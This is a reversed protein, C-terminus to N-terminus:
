ESSKEQPAYVLSVVNSIAFTVTEVRDGDFELTATDSPSEGSLFRSPSLPVLLVFVQGPDVVVLDEGYMEISLEPPATFGPPLDSTHSLAYRGVLRNRELQSLEISDSHSPIASHLIEPGAALILRVLYGFEMGSVQGEPRFTDYRHVIVLDWQPIVLVFHGRYGSASFAGDPLVVNSLHQGDVAIWWMYGYGGNPGADSYSTTSEAVWSVPIIQENRWRGGRAFLLGFRALDRASMRFGYYPHQSPPAYDYKLQELPYDQMGLPSAIRNQFAQYINWEGTEQDFITGLANFDWNNYYWFTGPAHSGRQPRIEKMSPAEGAAPIYVGSRAKLLDAVTAQKEVETLPTHDDIGLEALTKSTDIKGEAVYIGVLGSLLSKRMSHCICNRTIDGWADVVIGHHVIMVAASDIRDAFARAQALKDSSWGVQEPSKAWQWTKEPYVADGAQGTGFWRAQPAGEPPNASQGCSALLLTLMVATLVHRGKM